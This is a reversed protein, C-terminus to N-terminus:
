RVKAVFISAAMDGAIANEHEKYGKALNDRKPGTKVGPQRPRRPSVMRRESQKSMRTM